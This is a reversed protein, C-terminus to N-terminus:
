LSMQLRESGCIPSTLLIRPLNVLECRVGYYPQGQNARRRHLRKPNSEPLKLFGPPM